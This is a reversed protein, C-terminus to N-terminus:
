GKASANAEDGRKRRAVAILLLLLPAALVLWGGWSRLWVQLHVQATFDPPLLATCFWLVALPFVLPRHFPLHLIDTTIVVVTHFVASLKIAAGFFWILVMFAEVRQFFRGLYINRALMYAPFPQEQAGEWGFTLLVALTVIALFLGALLIGNRGARFGAAPTRFAYAFALLATVEGYSGAFLLSIAATDPLGFGWVPYLWPWHFRNWNLVVIAAVSLVGLPFFILATRGLTEIGRYSAAAACIILGIVIVSPPTEPLIAVIFTESITRLTTFGLVFFFSAVGLAILIGLWGSTTEAITGLGEGPFRRMLIMTPLFAALAGLAALIPISWGATAGYQIMFMPFQLYAKTTILAFALALGSQYDIIGEQAKM